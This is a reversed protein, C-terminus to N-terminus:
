IVRLNLSVKEGVRIEKGNVLTHHSQQMHPEMNAPYVPVSGTGGNCFDLLGCSTIEGVRAFHSGAKLEKDIEGYNPSTEWLIRQERIV